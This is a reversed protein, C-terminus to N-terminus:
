TKPFIGSSTFEHLPLENITFSRHRGYEIYMPALITEDNVNVKEELSSVKNGTSFKIRSITSHVFSKRRRLRDEVYDDYARLM